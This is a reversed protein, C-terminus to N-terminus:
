WRAFDTLSNTELNFINRKFKIEKKDQNGDSVEYILKFDVICM